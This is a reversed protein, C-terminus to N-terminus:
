FDKQILRTVLKNIWSAAENSKSRSECITILYMTKSQGIIVYKGGNFAVLINGESSKVVYTKGQITLREPVKEDFYFQLKQVEVASLVFGPTASALSGDKHVMAAKKFSYQKKHKMIHDIWIKWANPAWAMSTNILMGLM